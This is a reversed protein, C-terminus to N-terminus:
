YMNSLGGHFTKICTHTLRHIVFSTFAFIVPYYAAFLLLHLTVHKTIRTLWIIYQITYFIYHVNGYLQCERLAVNKFKEPFLSRMVMLLHFKSTTKWIGLEEVNPKRFTFDGCLLCSVRAHNHLYRFHFIMVHNGVFGQNVVFVDHMMQQDITAM